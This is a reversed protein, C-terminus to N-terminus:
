KKSLCRDDLYFGSTGLSEDYYSRFQLYYDIDSLGGDWQINMIPKETKFVICVGNDEVWKDLAKTYVEDTTTIKCTQENGWIHTEKLVVENVTYDVSDNEVTIITISVTEKASEYKWEGEVDTLEADFFECSSNYLLWGFVYDCKFYGTALWTVTSYKYSSSETLYYTVEALLTDEIYHCDIYEVKDYLFNCLLQNYNEDGLETKYQVDSTRFLHTLSEPSTESEWGNESNYRVIMEFDINLIVHPTEYAGKISYACEASGNEIADLKQWIPAIETTNLIAFDEGLEELYILEGNEENEFLTLSQLLVHNALSEIEDNLPETIIKKDFRYQLLEDKWGFDHMLIYYARITIEGSFDQGIVSCPIEVGYEVPTGISETM